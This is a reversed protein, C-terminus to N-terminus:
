TAVVTGQMHPHLACFYKYVGPKDFTFSFADDTDLPASHFLPPTAASTATHPIDDHNTWTVKTGAPVTLTAPTFAFNDIGISADAAGARVGIVRALGFVLVGTALAERRTLAFM